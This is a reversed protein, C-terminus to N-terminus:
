GFTQLDIKSPIDVLLYTYLKFDNRALDESFVVDPEIKLKCKITYKDACSEIAM